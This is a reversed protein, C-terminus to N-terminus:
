ADHSCGDIELYGPPWPWDRIETPLTGLDVRRASPFAKPQVPHFNTSAPTWKDWVSTLWDPKMQDEHSSSQVKKAIRSRPGVYSGHHFVGVESPIRHWGLFRRGLSNGSPGLRALSKTMLNPRPDRSKGLRRDSRVFATFAESTDVRFNWSKFYTLAAVQYFPEGTDEVYGFLRRVSASDYIEDADIIWFYDIRDLPRDSEHQRVLRTSIARPAAFDMARNRCRSENSDYSILLDLKREPDGEHDLLRPVLDDPAQHRGKWDRDYATIVTVGDVHPYVAALSAFFLDAESLVAYIAHVRM